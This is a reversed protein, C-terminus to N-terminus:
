GGYIVHVFELEDGEKLETEEHAIKGNLKIIFTERNLNSSAIVSHISSNEPLEVQSGERKQKLM